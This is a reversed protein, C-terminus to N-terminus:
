EVKKGQLSKAKGNSSKVSIKKPQSKATKMFTVKCIGNEYSAAPESKEDVDGPVAIRYSFSNAAQRYYKKDKEEKRVTEGSIWLMGKDYTVDIDEPSVGPVAAEIYIHKDDESVTINGQSSTPMIDLDDDWLSPIRVSTFPSLSQLTNIM